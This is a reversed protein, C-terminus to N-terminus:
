AELIQESTRGPQCGGGISIDGGNWGNQQPGFTVALWGALFGWPTRVTSQVLQGTREGRTWTTSSNSGVQTVRVEM